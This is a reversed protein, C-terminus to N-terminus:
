ICEILERINKVGILKIKSNKINEKNVQPLICRSFGMKEAELVRQEAMNVARIEGTLGIEGFCITDSDLARNKYSSLIALV